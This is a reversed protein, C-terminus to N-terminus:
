KGHQLEDIYGATGGRDGIWIVVAGVSFLVGLGSAPYFLLYPLTGLTLWIVSRVKFWIRAWKVAREIRRAYGREAKERAEDRKKREPWSAMVREYIRDFREQDFQLPLVPKGGSDLKCAM